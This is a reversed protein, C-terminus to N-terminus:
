RSAGENNATEIRDGDRVFGQGLSILRVEDPLGIV